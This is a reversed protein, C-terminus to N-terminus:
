RAAGHVFTTRRPASEVGTTLSGADLINKQQVRVGEELLGDEAVQEGGEESVEEVGQLIM